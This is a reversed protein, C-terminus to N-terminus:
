CFVMTAPEGNTEVCIVSPTMMFCVVKEMSWLPDMLLLAAKVILLATTGSIAILVPCFETTAPAIKHGASELGM